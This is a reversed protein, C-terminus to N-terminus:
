DQVKVSTTLSNWFSAFPTKALIADIFVGDGACPKLLISHDTVALKQLMYDVIPKSKTYYAQYLDTGM